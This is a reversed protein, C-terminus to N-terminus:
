KAKPPYDKGGKAVKPECTCWEEAPITDMVAPVHMGCGFWSTKGSIYLWDDTPVIGLLWLARLHKSCTGCTAKRCM